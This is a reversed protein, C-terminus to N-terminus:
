TLNNPAYPNPQTCAAPHSQVVISKKLDLLFISKLYAPMSPPNSYVSRRYQLQVLISKKLDPLFTSKLYAPM